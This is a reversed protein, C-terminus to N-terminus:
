RTKVIIYLVIHYIALLSYATLIIWSGIRAALRDRNDYLFSIFFLMAFAKVLLALPPRSLIFRGIPSGEIEIGYRDVFYKTMGYDFMNLAYTVLCRILM